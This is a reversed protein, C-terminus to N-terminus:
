TQFIEAIKMKNRPRLLKIIPRRMPGEIARPLTDEAILVHAEENDAKKITMAEYMALRSYRLFTAYDKM